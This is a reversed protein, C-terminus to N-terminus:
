DVRGASGGAGAKFLRKFMRALGKMHGRRAQEAAEGEGPARDLAVDTAGGRVLETLQRDTGADPGTTVAEAVAAAPPAFLVPDSQPGAQGSESSSGDQPGSPSGPLPRFMNLLPEMPLPKAPCAVAGQSALLESGYMSPVMGATMGSAFAPLSGSAYATTALTTGSPPVLSADAGSGSGRWSSGTARGAAVAATQAVAKPAMSVRMRPPSATMLSTQRLMHQASPPTSSTSGHGSRDADSLAVRSASAVHRSGHRSEDTGYGAALTNVGGPVAVELDQVDFHAENPLWANPQAPSPVVEDMIDAPDLGEFMGGAPTEAGVGSGFTAMLLQQQQLLQKSAVGRQGTASLRHSATPPAAAAGANRAMGNGTGSGSSAHVISNSELSPLEVNDLPSTFNHTRVYSAALRLLCLRDLQDAVMVATLVAATIGGAEVEAGAGVCGNINARFLLSPADLVGEKDLYWASAFADASAPQQPGGVALTWLSDLAVVASDLPLSTALHLLNSGDPQGPVQGRWDVEAGGRVAWESAIRLVDAGGSLLACALLNLDNYTAAPLASLPEGMEVLASGIYALLKPYGRLASYALLSRGLGVIRGHAGGFIEAFRPRPGKFACSNSSAEPEDEASDGEEDEMRSESVRDDIGGEEEAAEVVAACREAHDVFLGLNVVLRRAQEGQEGRVLAETEAAVAEDELLLVPQWGGLLVGARPELVLLGQTTANYPLEVEVDYADYSESTREEGSCSSGNGPRGGMAPVPSTPPSSVTLTRSVPTTAALAPQSSDQSAEQTGVVESSVRKINVPLALGGMRALLAVGPDTLHRGYVRTRVVGELDSSDIHVVPRDVAALEPKAVRVGGRRMGVCGWSAYKPPAGPRLCLARDALQLYLEKAALEAPLVSLLAAAAAAADGSRLIAAVLGKEDSAHLADLVLETCGPRLCGQVVDIPAQSAFLQMRSRIDHPLEDPLCNMIKLSMRTLLELSVYGSGSPSAAMAGGIAPGAAASAPFAGLGAGPRFAGGAAAARAEALAQLQATASPRSPYAMGAVGLGGDLGSLSGAAAGLMSAGTGIGAGGLAGVGFGQPELGAAALGGMGTLGSRGLGAPQAGQLHLGASLQAQPMLGPLVAQAMAASHGLAAVLGLGPDMHELHAPLGPGAAACLLAPGQPSGAAASGARSLDSADSGAMAAALAGAPARGLCASGAAAAVRDYGSGSGLSGHGSFNSQANRAPACTLRQEPGIDRQDTGQTHLLDILSGLLADSDTLTNDNELSMRMLRSASHPDAAAAQGTAAPMGAASTPIRSPVQQQHSALFSAQAPVAAGTHVSAHQTADPSPASDQGDQPAATAAPSPLAEGANAHLTSSRPM